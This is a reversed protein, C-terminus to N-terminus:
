KNYLPVGADPNNSFEPWRKLAGIKTGHPRKQCLCLVAICFSVSVALFLSGVVVLGIFTAFKEAQGYTIRFINDQRDYDIEETDYYCITQNPFITSDILAEAQQVSSM